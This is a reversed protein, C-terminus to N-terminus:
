GLGLAIWQESLLLAPSALVVAVFAKALRSDKMVVVDDTNILDGLTIDLAAAVRLAAALPLDRKGNEYNSLSAQTLGAAYALDVQKMGRRLRWERIRRGMARQDIDNGM